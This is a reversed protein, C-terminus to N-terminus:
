TSRGPLWDVQEFVSGCTDCLFRDKEFETSRRSRCSPYVLIPKKKSSNQVIANAAPMGCGSCRKAATVNRVGQCFRCFGTM